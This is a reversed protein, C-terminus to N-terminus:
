LSPSCTATTANQLMQFFVKSVDSVKSVTIAKKQVGDHTEISNNINRTDIKPKILLYNQNTKNLRNLLETTKGAFMCGTIVQIDKIM